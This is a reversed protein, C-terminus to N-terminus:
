NKNNHVWISFPILFAIYLMVKSLLPLSKKIFISAVAIINLQSIQKTSDQWEGYPSVSMSLSM